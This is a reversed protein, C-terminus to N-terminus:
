FVLCSPLAGLRVSDGLVLKESYKQCHSGLRVPDGLVLEESYKEGAAKKASYLTPPLLFGYHPNKNITKM